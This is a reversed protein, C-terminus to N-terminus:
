LLKSYGMIHLLNGLGTNQEWLLSLYHSFPFVLWSLISSQDASLWGPLHFELYSMYCPYLSELPLLAVNTSYVTGLDVLWIVYYEVPFKVM